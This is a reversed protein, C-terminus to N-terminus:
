LGGIEVEGSGLRMELVIHETTSIPRLVVRVNVEGADRVEPPNLESDCQVSYDSGARDGTLLGAEWVQTLRAGVLREVMKWLEPRQNEFVVWSSDRRLQEAVASVIRRANIHLWPDEQSLTRAGWVVVGRAPQTLIPNLGAQQLASTESWRVDLSPHTVGRLMDNAPPWGMGFPEHAAEVRAYLGTVPGSPPFEEEGSRLWPYYAAGYSAHQAARARLARCWALLADGHLDRPPDIVLFRNNMEACHELLRGLMNDGAARPPGDGYEVPLYSLVPMSLLAIEEDSRLRYLLGGFVDDFPDQVMLDQESEVCVGFLYCLRGGNEFFSRVARRSVPDILVRRAEQMLEAHATLRLEIFDGHLSGRPWRGQPVVGILGLIDGRVAASDRSVERAHQITIGPRM